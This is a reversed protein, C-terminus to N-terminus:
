GQSYFIALQHRHGDEHEELMRLNLAEITVGDTAAAWQAAATFVEALTHGLLWCTTIADGDDEVAQTRRM